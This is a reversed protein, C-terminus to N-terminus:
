VITKSILRQNTALYKGLVLQINPLDALYNGFLCIVFVIRVCYRIKSSELERPPPPELNKLSCLEVPMDGRWEM